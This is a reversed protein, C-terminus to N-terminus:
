SRGRNDSAIGRLTAYDLESERIEEETEDGMKPFIREPLCKLVANMILSCAGLVICIIWQTLTLGKIHVKMAKSGFQVILVQGVVIIIWVSMFMFNTFIGSLFNFEDNIKRAALMNFIQFFVFLNFVFTLHRSPTHDFFDSYVPNGDFDKVMGNM